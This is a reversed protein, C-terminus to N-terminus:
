PGSGEFLRVLGAPDMDRIQEHPCDGILRGARMILLRDGFKVADSLRHTVLLTTIRREQCLQQTLDMCSAANRADLSATHEDLLLLDPKRVVALVLALMQRQGASLESVLANRRAALGIRVLLAESAEQAEATLRRRFPSPRPGCLVLRLHADITLDPVTGATPDQFVQAFRTARLRPPLVTWEQERGDGTTWHVSGRDPEIAGALVNLLTSKGSGNSGIVMVLQGPDIKLNVADLAVVRDSGSSFTKGIDRFELGIGPV